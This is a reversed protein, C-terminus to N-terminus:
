HTHRLRLHLPRVIFTNTPLTKLVVITNNYTIIHM